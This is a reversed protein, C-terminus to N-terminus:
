PTVIVSNTTQSVTFIANSPTYYTDSHLPNFDVASWFFDCWRLVEGNADAFVFLTVGNTAFSPIRYNPPKFDLLPCGLTKEIEEYPTHARFVYLRDWAFKTANTMAFFRPPDPLRGIRLATDSIPEAIHYRKIPPLLVKFYYNIAIGALCLCICFCLLFFGSLAYKKM